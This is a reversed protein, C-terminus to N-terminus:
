PLKAIKPRAFLPQLWQPSDVGHDLGVKLMAQRWTQELFHRAIAPPNSALATNIVLRAQIAIEDRRELQGLLPLYAQAM